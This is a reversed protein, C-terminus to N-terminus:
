NWGKCASPWNKPLCNPPRSTRAPPVPLLLRSKLYTLWAAM